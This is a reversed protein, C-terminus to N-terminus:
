LYRNLVSSFPSSAPNWKDSVLIVHQLWLMDAANAQGETNPLSRTYEEAMRARMFAPKDATAAAFEANVQAQIADVRQQAKKLEGNAAGFQGRLKEPVDDGANKVEAEVKEFRTKVKDLNAKPQALQKNLKEIIRFHGQYTDLTETFNAM